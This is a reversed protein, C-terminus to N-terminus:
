AAPYLRRYSYHYSVVCCYIYIYMICNDLDIRLDIRNCKSSLAGLQLVHM